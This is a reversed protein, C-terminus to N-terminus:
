KVSNTQGTADRVRQPEDTIIMDVGLELVRRIDNPENVTWVGIAVDRQRLRQCTDSSLLSHELHVAPWRDDIARHLMDPKEILLAGAAQPHYEWLERVNQEDFSQVMWWTQSRVLLNVVRRVLDRAAPPKIEVLWGSEGPRSRLARELTPITQDSRKLRIQELASADRADVPGSAEATRDLTDDHIVIPEGDRSAHVDCEVWFGAAIALEFAAVSNEPFERHMGRHAVIIPPQSTKM